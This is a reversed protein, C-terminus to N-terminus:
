CETELVQLQGGFNSPASLWTYITMLLRPQVLRPHWLAEPMPHRM